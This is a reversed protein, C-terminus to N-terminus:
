IVIRPPFPLLWLKHLLDAGGAEFSPHLLFRRQIRLRPGHCRPLELLGILRSATMHATKIQVIITKGGFVRAPKPM